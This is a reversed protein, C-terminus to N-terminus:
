RDLLLAQIAERSCGAALALSLIVRAQVPSSLGAALWGEGVDDANHQPWVGGAAIRSARVILCGQRRAERLAPLWNQPVSGHGALALVLARSGMTCCAEILEPGAGAHGHLIDVRPLASDAALLLPPQVAAAPPPLPVSAIQGLAARGAAAALGAPAHTHQKLFDRARIIEGNAVVLVGHAAARADLALRAADCLNAPGDASLATAPRMAATLVVPKNRPLLLQLACATEELTDTGHTIVIGAIDPDALHAQVRAALQLWHAPTFDRSDLAFAQEIQWDALTALPPVAAFLAAADLAGATYREPSGAGAITGGTTILALRM